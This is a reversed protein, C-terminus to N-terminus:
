MYLIHMGSLYKSHKSLRFPFDRIVSDLDIDSKKDFKIEVIIRHDQIASDNSSNYGEPFAYIVNRDITLRYQGSIDLYYSRLYQNRIVPLVNKSHPMNDNVIQTLQRLSDYQIDRYHIKSGLANKKIKYEITGVASSLISGYREIVYKLEYRYDESTM